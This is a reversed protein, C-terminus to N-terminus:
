VTQNGAFTSLSKQYNSKKRFIRDGFCMKLVYLSFGVLKEVVVNNFRSM